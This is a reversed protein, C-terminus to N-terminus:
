PPVRSVCHLRAGVSPVGRGIGVRGLSEPTYKERRKQARSNDSAHPDPPQTLRPLPQKLPGYEPRRLAHQPQAAAIRRPVPARYKLALEGVRMQDRPPCRPPLLRRSAKVEVMHAPDAVADVDRMQLHERVAVVDPNVTRRLQVAPHTIPLPDTPHAPRTPIPPDLRPTVPMGLPRPRHIPLVLSPPPLPSPRLSLLGRRILAGRGGMRQGSWLHTPDDRPLRPNPSRAQATSPCASGCSQPGLRM